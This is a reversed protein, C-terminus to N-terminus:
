PKVVSGDRIEDSARKVVTDGAKLNGVVEVQDGAIAGKKVEYLLSQRRSLSHCWAPASGVPRNPALRDRM